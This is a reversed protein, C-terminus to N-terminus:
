HLKGRRVTHNQDILKSGLLHVIINCVCLKLVLLNCESICKTAIDKETRDILNLQPVLKPDTSM